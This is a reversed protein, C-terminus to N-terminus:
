VFQIEGKDIFDGWKMLFASANTFFSVSSVIYFSELHQAPAWFLHEKEQELNKLDAWSQLLDLSWRSDLFVIM